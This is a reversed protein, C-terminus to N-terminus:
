RSDASAATVIVGRGPIKGLASFDPRANRVPQESNLEVFVDFKTRALSAVDDRAVGLVRSLETADVDIDGKGPPTSPFDMEILGDGGRTCSLVGSKTRFLAPEHPALHKAEWLTHASALTAHGCLDVESTPTFWRLNWDGHDRRHV